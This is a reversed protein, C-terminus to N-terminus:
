YPRLKELYKKIQRKAQNRVRVVGDILVKHTDKINIPLGPLNMDFKIQYGARALKEISLSAVKLDEQYNRLFKELGKDFKNQIRQRLRDSIKLKQENIIINM